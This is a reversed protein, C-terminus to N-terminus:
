IQQERIGERHEQLGHRLVVATESSHVGFILIITEGVQHPVGVVLVFVVLVDL